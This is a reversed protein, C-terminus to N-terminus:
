KELPTFEGEGDGLYLISKLYGPRWSDEGVPIRWSSYDRATPDKGATLLDLNGDGNLDGFRLTGRPLPTVDSDVETFRGRGDGFFLRTTQTRSGGSVDTGSLALDLNGDGNIDGFDVSESAGGAVGPLGADAEVFGGKKPRALYLRTKPTDGAGREDLVLDGHSAEDGMVLLDAAGDGNVDGTEVLQWRAWTDLDDTFGPDTETFEGQGNGLYLVAANEFNSNEGTLHDEYTGTVLIDLHGDGNFDDLVSTESFDALGVDAKKFTAGKGGWYLLTEPEWRLDPVRVKKQGTLLLDPDGDSNLDAFSITGEFIDQLETDARTFGGRGDGLHLNTSPSSQTGTVLLDLHGDGNVDAFAGESGSIGANTATFCGRGDGLYIRLLQTINPGPVPHVKPQPLHSNPMPLMDPGRILLDLHGDNNIDRISSIGWGTITNTIRFGGQGDGLYLRTTPEDPFRPISAGGLQGALLLDLTGDGNVDGLSISAGALVGTLGANVEFDPDMWDNDGFLSRKTGASAMGMNVKKFNGEGDGLYVLAMPFGARPTAIADRDSGAVVLDLHGDGNVDGFTSTGTKMEMLGADAEAFGRQFDGIYLTATANNHPTTGTILLDPVDDGNVDELNVSGGAADVLGIKAATFGGEGDGLYLETTPKESAGEGTIVLDLDGDGNVDGFSSSSYRVGMLGANTRTFGGKGDGLYLIASPGYPSMGTLLVDPNQDGNVDGVSISGFRVGTLGADAKSFDGQGNGLYVTATAGGNVTQGAILLDLNGDTNVDAFLSSSRRVDVLGVSAKSFGGKGDGMYLTTSPEHSSNEGTVVLDLDGDNDIDGFDSSSWQVGQFGAGPCNGPADGWRLASGPSSALKSGRKGNMARNTYEEERTAGAGGLRQDGQKVQM